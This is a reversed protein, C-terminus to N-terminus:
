TSSEIKAASKSNSKIPLERQEVPALLLKDIQERYERNVSTDWLNLQKICTGRVIQILIPGSLDTICQNMYLELQTLKTNGILYYSLTEIGKDALRNNGFDLRVLHQNDQIYEGLSKMCIDDIQNGTFYITSVASNCEKLM